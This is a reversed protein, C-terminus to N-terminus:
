EDKRAKEALENLYEDSLILLDKSIEWKPQIKKVAEMDLEITAKVSRYAKIQEELNEQPGAKMITEALRNMKDCNKLISSNLRVLDECNSTTLLGAFYAKKDLTPIIKKTMDFGRQIIKLDKKYAEMLAKLDDEVVPLIIEPLKALEYAHDMRDMMIKRFFEMEEAKTSIKSVIPYGSFYIAAELADQAPVEHKIANYFDISRRMSTEGEPTLQVFRMFKGMEDVLMNIAARSHPEDPDFLRTFRTEIQDPDAQMFALAPEIYYTTIVEQALNVERIRSNVKTLRAVIEDPLKSILKLVFKLREQEPDDHVHARIEDIADDMIKDDLKILRTEIFKRCARMSESLSDVAKGSKEDQEKASKQGLERVHDIKDLILVAQKLVARRELIPQADKLSMAAGYLANLVSEVNSPDVSSGKTQPLKKLDNKIQEILDSPSKHQLREELYKDQLIQVASKDLDWGPQIKKVAEMDLDLQAKIKRYDRINDDVQDKPGKEIAEALQNLNFCRDSIRINLQKLTDWTEKTMINQFLPSNQDPFLKKALLLARVDAVDMKSHCDKATKELMEESMPLKITSFEERIKDYKEKIPNLIHEMEELKSSITFHLRAGFDNYRQMKAFYIAIELADQPPVKDQISYFNKRVQQVIKRYDINEHSRVDYEKPVSAVTLESLLVNVAARSLPEASDFLESISKLGFERHTMFSNICQVAYFLPDKM